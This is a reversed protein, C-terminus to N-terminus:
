SHRLKVGPRRGTKKSHLNQCPKKVIAQRMIVVILAIFFLSMIISQVSTYCFFIAVFGAFCGLAGSAISLLANTFRKNHRYAWFRNGAFIILAIGIIGLSTTFVQFNSHIWEKM